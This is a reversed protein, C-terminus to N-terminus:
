TRTTRIWRIMLWTALVPPEPCYGGTWWRSALRWAFTGEQGNIGQLIHCVIAKYIM